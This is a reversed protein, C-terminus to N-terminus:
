LAYAADYYDKKLGDASGCYVCISKISGIM